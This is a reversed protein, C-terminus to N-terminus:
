VNLLDGIIEDESYHRLLDPFSMAVSAVDCKRPEPLRGFQHEFEQISQRYHARIAYQARLSIRLEARLDVITSTLAGHHYASKAKVAALLDLYAMFGRTEEIMEEILALARKKDLAKSRIAVFNQGSWKRKGM